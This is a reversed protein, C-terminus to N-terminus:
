KKSPKTLESAKPVYHQGAYRLWASLNGDAYLDANEQLARLDERSVKVNIAKTEKKTKVQTKLMYVDEGNPTYSDIVGLFNKPTNDEKDAINEPNSLMLAILVGFVITSFVNFFISTKFLTRVEMDQIKYEIPRM